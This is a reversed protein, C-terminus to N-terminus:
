RITGDLATKVPTWVEAAHKGRYVRVHALVGWSGLELTRHRGEPRDDNMLCGNDLWGPWPM